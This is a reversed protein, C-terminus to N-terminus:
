EVYALFMQLIQKFEVCSREMLIQSEWAYKRLIMGVKCLAVFTSNGTDWLGNWFKALIRYALCGM